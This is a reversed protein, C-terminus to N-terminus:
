PLVGAPSRRPLRAAPRCGPVRLGFGPARLQGARAPPTQGEAGGCSHEPHEQRGARQRGARQRRGPAGPRPRGTRGTRRALRRRRRRHAPRRGSAAVAPDQRQRGRGDADAPADKGAAGQGGRGTERQRHLQDDAPCTTPCTLTTWRACPRSTQPCSLISSNFSRSPGDLDKLRHQSLDRLSADPPLADQVLERTTASLLTQGGHGAAMLRAVRNLPQGFYDGGREEAAGTHLAMRVLLPTQTGWPEVSLALQADLAAELATNATPFAACFADGVTKFVYGEHEEICGRLLDDHRALAPRMADSHAEWLKTSGEIDTFLFTVTGTPPLSM